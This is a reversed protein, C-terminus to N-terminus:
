RGAILCTRSGATRYRPAVPRGRAGEEERRPAVPKRRPIAHKGNSWNYVRTVKIRAVLYSKRGRM